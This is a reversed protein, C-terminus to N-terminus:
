EPIRYGSINRELFKEVKDGFGTLGKLELQVFIGTQPQSDARNVYRRGLIRFRWCCSEKELGLLSELTRGDEFSYLWRGVVNWDNYIPWYISADAQKTAVAGQFVDEQRFRYGLNLIKQQHERYRVFL